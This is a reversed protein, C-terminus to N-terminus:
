SNLSKGSNPYKVRASRTAGCNSKCPAATRLTSGSLRLSLEQEVRPKAQLYREAVVRLCANHRERQLLAPMGHQVRGVRAILLENDRRHQLWTACAVVPPQPQRLRLLRPLRTLLSPLLLLLLLMHLPVVVM